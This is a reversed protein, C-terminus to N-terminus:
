TSLIFSDCCNLIFYLPLLPKSCDQRVLRPCDQRQCFSRSTQLAPILQTYIISVGCIWKTNDTHYKLLYDQTNIPRGALVRSIKGGHRDYGEESNSHAQGKSFNIIIWLLLDPRPQHFKYLFDRKLCRFHSEVIMTTRLIYIETPDASCAWLEWRGRRYWEEWLYAWVKSFDYERCFSYLETVANV